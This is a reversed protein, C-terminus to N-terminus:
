KTASSRLYEKYTSGNVANEDFIPDYVAGTGGTEAVLYECKEKPASFQAEVSRIICNFIGHHNQVAVQRGSGYVEPWKAVCESLVSKDAIWFATGFGESTCTDFWCRHDAAAFGFSFDYSLDLNPNSVYTVHINRLIHAPSLINVGTQVNSIRMNTFTSDSGEIQLGVSGAKGNGIITINEADSDVVKGYNNWHLGIETNIITINRVSTERGFDISIGNARGNGDIIGGEIYYNAGIIDINNVKTQAGLKIMAGSGKEWDDSAKIVANNSLKICISQTGESSTTLPKSIIYEGDPFYIVKNSNKSLNFLKQLEPYLDKGTNPTVYDTVVLFGYDKFGFNKDEFEAKVQEQEIKEVSLYREVLLDGEELDVAAYKGIVADPDSIAGTCVQDSPLTVEEFKASTIKTGRKIDCNARLVTINEAKEQKPADTADPVTNDSNCSSM